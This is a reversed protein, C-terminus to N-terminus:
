VGDKGEMTKIINNVILDIEEYILELSDAKIYTLGGLCTGATGDVELNGSWERDWSSWVSDKNGVNKLVGIHRVIGQSRGNVDKVHMGIKVDKIDM